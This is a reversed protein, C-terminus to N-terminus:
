KKRYKKSMYDRVNPYINQEINTNRAAPNEFYQRIQTSSVDTLKTREKALPIYIAGSTKVSRSIQQEDYGVRFVVACSMNNQKAMREVDSCKNFHDLGCVYVVRLPYKLMKEQGVLTSNLFDRFDETVPVFDVFGDAWESEGRSVDIWSSVESGEYKIAGECLRCRDKAPTWAPDKLKAHV